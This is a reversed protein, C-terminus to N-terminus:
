HYESVTIQNVEFVNLDGQKVKLCLMRVGGQLMEVIERAEGTDLGGGVM